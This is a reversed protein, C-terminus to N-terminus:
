GVGSRGVFVGKSAGSVSMGGVIGSIVSTMAGVSVTAGSISGVMSVPSVPTSNDAGVSSSGVKGVKIGTVEVGRKIVGPLGNPGTVGSVGVGVESMGGVEVGDPKIVGVDSGPM